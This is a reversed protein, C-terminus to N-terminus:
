STLACRQCRQPRTNSGGLAWLFFRPSRAGTGHKVSLQRGLRDHRPNWRPARGHSAHRTERDMRCRAARAGPRVRGPRTTRGVVIPGARQLAGSHGQRLAAHRRATALGAPREPTSEAHTVEWDFAFPEDGALAQEIWSRPRVIGQGIHHAVYGVPWGEGSCPLAWQEDTLSRLLGEVTAFRELFEDALAIARASM